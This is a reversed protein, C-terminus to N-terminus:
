RGEGQDRSNMADQLAGLNSGWDGGMTTLIDKIDKSEVEKREGMQATVRAKMSKVKDMQAQEEASPPRPTWRPIGADFHESMKHNPSGPPPCLLVQIRTEKLINGAKAQWLPGLLAQLNDDNDEGTTILRRIPYSRVDIFNHSLPQCAM